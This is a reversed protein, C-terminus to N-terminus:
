RVRRGHEILYGYSNTPRANALAAAPYLHLEVRNGTSKQVEGFLGLRDQLSMRVVDVSFVALDNDSYEDPTGDVYSGFVYAAAIDIREALYDLSRDVLETVQDTALAM